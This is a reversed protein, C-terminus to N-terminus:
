RTVPPAESVLQVLAERVRSTQLDDMLLYRGRGAETPKSDAGGDDGVIVEGQAPLDFYGRDPYM